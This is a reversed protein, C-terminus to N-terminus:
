EKELLMETAALLGSFYQSYYLRLHKQQQLIFFRKAFRSISEVSANGVIFSTVFAFAAAALALILSNIVAQFLLENVSYSKALSRGLNGQFLQRLWTLYQIPLPQDLGLEKFLQDRVEKARM